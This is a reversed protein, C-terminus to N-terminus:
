GNRECMDTKKFIQKHQDHPKNHQEHMLQGWGYESYFIGNRMHEFMTVIYPVTNRPLANGAAWVLEDCKEPECNIIEGSWSRARLFVDVRENDDERRHMIHVIDLEKENVIIGIEEHSERVMACTFSEGKDVHGAVLSYQGDRYGTNYRRTLLYKGDRELLLYSVPIVTHRQNTM